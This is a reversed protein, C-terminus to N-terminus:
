RKSLLYTQANKNRNQRCDDYSMGRPKMPSGSSSICYAKPWPVLVDQSEFKRHKQEMAWVSIILRGGIRLVRALEKLARVRRETTSFHHVVAISLM